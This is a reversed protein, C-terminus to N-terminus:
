TRGQCPQRPRSAGRSEPNVHAGSHKLRTHDPPKRGARLHDGPAFSARRWFQTHADRRTQAGAFSSCFVTTPVLWPSRPNTQAAAARSNFDAHRHIASQEQRPSRIRTVILDPFSIRISYGDTAPSWAPPALASGGHSSTPLIYPPSPRPPCFTSNVRGGSSRSRAPAVEFLIAATM